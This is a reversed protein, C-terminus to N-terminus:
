KIYPGMVAYAKPAWKTGQILPLSEDREKIIEKVDTNAQIYAL